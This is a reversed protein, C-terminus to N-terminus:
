LAAAWGQPTRPGPTWRSAYSGNEREFPFVNSRFLCELIRANGHWIFQIQHWGPGGGFLYIISQIIYLFKRYFLITYWFSAIIRGTVCVKTCSELFKQAVKGVKTCFNCLLVRINVMTKFRVVTTECKVLVPQYPFHPAVM